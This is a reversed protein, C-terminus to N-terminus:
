ASTAVSCGLPESLQICIIKYVICTCITHTNIYECCHTGLVLFISTSVRLHGLEVVLLNQLLDNVFHVYHFLSLFQLSFLRNHCIIGSCLTIWSYMYSYQIKFLPQPCIRLNQEDRIFYYELNKGFKLRKCTTNIFM